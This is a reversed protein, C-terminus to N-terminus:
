DILCDAKFLPSKKYPTQPAPSSTLISTVSNRYYANFFETVEQLWCKKTMIYNHLICSSIKM